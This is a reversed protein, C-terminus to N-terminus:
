GFEITIPSFTYFIYNLSLYATLSYQHGVVPIFQFTPRVLYSANAAVDFSSFGDGNGNTIVQTQLDQFKLFSFYVGQASSAINDVEILITVQGKAPDITANKVKLSFNYFVTDVGQNCDTCNMTQNIPVVQSTPIPTLSPTAIPPETAAPFGPISVSTRGGIAITTVKSIFVAVSVFGACIITVILATIIIVKMDSKHDLISKVGRATTPVIGVLAVMIAVVESVSM